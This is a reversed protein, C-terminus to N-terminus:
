FHANKFFNKSKSKTCDLGWVLFLKRDDWWDILKMWPRKKVCEGFCMKDRCKKAIKAAFLDFWCLIGEEFLVRKRPFVRFPDVNGEDTVEDHRERVRNGWGQFICRWRHEILWVDVLVLLLCRLQHRLKSRQQLTELWVSDDIKTKAIATM